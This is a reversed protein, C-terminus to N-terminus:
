RSVPGNLQEAPRAPAGAKRIKDFTIFASVVTLGVFLLGIAAILLWAGRSLGGSHSSKEDAEPILADIAEDVADDATTSYRGAESVGTSLARARVPM